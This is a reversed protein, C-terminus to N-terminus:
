NCYVSTLSILKARSGGGDAIKQYSMLGHDYSCTLKSLCFRRVFDHFKAVM